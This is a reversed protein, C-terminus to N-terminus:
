YGEYLVNISGGDFTNTNGVTTLRIRTLTSTLSKSGSTIFSWAEDERSISGFMTWTNTNSDLLTFIYSGSYLGSAVQYSTSVTLLFGSTSNVGAVGGALIHNAGTYGSTEYGGTDGLQIQMPSTSDTSVGNLMVTIRKAWSPIGTFPITTGSAGQSTELKMLPYSYTGAVTTAADVKLTSM